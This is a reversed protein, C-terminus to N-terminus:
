GAADREMRYLVFGTMDDVRSGTEAFGMHRYFARADRNLEFVELTLAGKLAAAHDLLARGHGQGHADPHVFLGGVECPGDEHDLLGLLGVVRGTGDEGLWNEAQVLYVERVLREREGMGEGALFPHGHASAASWVAVAAEEDEPRFPRIHLAM